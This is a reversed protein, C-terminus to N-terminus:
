FIKKRGYIDALRGVTLLIAAQPLTMATVVLGLLVAEVAFEKGITPLAINVASMMFSNVVLNIAIIILAVRKAVVSNTDDIM